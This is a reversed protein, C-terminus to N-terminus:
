AALRRERWRDLSVAAIIILGVVIDQISNDVELLTCGTEIVSMMVAGALTGLVSGRGGSLSAGGIVVAAIVKLEYGIGSTPNGARLRAFQYVGALGIFLGSLAYVAVKLRPVNIGCLRATSENSGLAFVHRGFVTYRLVAALAVALGLAIWAGPALVLWSTASDDGRAFLAPLWDPVQARAPRLTTENAVIKALGLYITMTGLTVIFPVVRLTSILVGNIAGALAGTAVGAAICLASPFDARLCWALVTASLALANGVSLDIGGAIIVVTMGLAGIAVISTQVSIMWINDFSVFTSSGNKIWDATAFFVIVLALALLPGLSTGL